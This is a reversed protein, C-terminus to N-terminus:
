PKHNHIELTPNVDEAILGQVSTYVDESIALKAFSQAAAKMDKM